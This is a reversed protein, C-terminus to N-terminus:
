PNWNRLSTMGNQGYKKTNVQSLHLSVNCVTKGSYIIRRTYKLGCSNLNKFRRIPQFVTPNPLSLRNRIANSIVSYEYICSAM